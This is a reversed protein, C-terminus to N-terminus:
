SQELKSVKHFIEPAQNITSLMHFVIPVVKHRHAPMILFFFLREINDLAINDLLQFREQERLGRLIAMIWLNLNQCFNCLPIWECLLGVTKRISEDRVNQELLSQVAETILDPSFLEFVIAVAFSPKDHLQILEYVIRLYLMLYRKKNPMALLSGVKLMEAKFRKIDEPNSSIQMHALNTIVMKYSHQRTHPDELDIHEMIHLLTAIDQVSNIAGIGAQDRSQESCADMSEGGGGGEDSINMNNNKNSSSGPNMKAQKGASGGGVNSGGGGGGGATGASDAATSGTSVDNSETNNQKVAM